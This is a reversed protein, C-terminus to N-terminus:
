TKMDINVNEGCTLCFWLYADRGRRHRGRHLSDNCFENKANVNQSPVNVGADVNAHAGALM